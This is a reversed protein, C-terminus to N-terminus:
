GPFMVYFLVCVSMTQEEKVINQKEEKKKKKIAYQICVCFGLFGSYNYGFM